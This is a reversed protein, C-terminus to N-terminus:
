TVVPQEKQRKAARVARAKAARERNAQKKADSQEANAQAPVSVKISNIQATVLAAVQQKLADMESKDRANQSEMYARYEMRHKSAAHQRMETDSKFGYQGRRVCLPYFCDVKGFFQQKVPVDSFKLYYAPTMAGPSQARGKKRCDPCVRGYFGSFNCISCHRKMLYKRGGDHQKGATDWALPITTERGDWTWARRANPRGPERKEKDFSVRGSQGATVLRAGGVNGGDSLDGVSANPDFKHVPNVIDEGSEMMDRDIQEAVPDIEAESLLKPM